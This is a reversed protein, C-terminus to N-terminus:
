KFQCKGVDVLAPGGFFKWGSGMGVDFTVAGCVRDTLIDCIHRKAVQAEIIQLAHDIAAALIVRCELLQAYEVVLEVFIRHLMFDNDFIVGSVDIDDFVLIAIRILRLAFAKCWLLDSQKPFM